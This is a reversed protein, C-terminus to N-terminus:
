IKKHKQDVKELSANLQLIQEQLAAKNKELVRSTIDIGYAVVYDIRGNENLIPSM